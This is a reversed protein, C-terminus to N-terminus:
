ARNLVGPAAYCYAPVEQGDGFRHTTEGLRVCGSREYLRIAAEDKTMVDFVVRLDRRQAYQMAAAALYQGLSRRRAAPVVFLRAIVAIQDTTLSTRELLMEVAAEGRPESIAVHGLIDDPDGVVWAQLLGDPFLWAEADVVGEVPYGDAEYVKKLAEVCSAIDAATRRRVEPGPTTHDTM